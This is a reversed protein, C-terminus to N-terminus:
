LPIATLIIINIMTGIVAAIILSFIVWLIIGQEKTQYEKMLIKTWDIGRTAIIGIAFSIIYVIVLLSWQIMDLNM